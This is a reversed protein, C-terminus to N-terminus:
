IPIKEKFQELTIKYETVSWFRRVEQAEFRKLLNNIQINKSNTTWTLEEINNLELNKSIRKAILKLVDNGTKTRMVDQSIAIFGLAATSHSKDLNISYGGVIKDGLKISETLSGPRKAFHLFPSISFYRQMKQIFGSLKTGPKLNHLLSDHFLNIVQKIDKTSWALCVHLQDFLISDDLGSSRYYSTIPKSNEKVMHPVSKINHVSLM